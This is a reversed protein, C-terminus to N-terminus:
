GIFYHHHWIEDLQIGGNSTTIRLALTSQEPLQPEAPKEILYRSTTSSLLVRVDTM